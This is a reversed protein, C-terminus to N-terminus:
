NGGGALSGFHWAKGNLSRYYLSELQKATKLQAASSSNLEALQKAPSFDREQYLTKLNEWSHVVRQLWIYKMYSVIVQIENNTLDNVFSKQVDDLELSIRPFKFWPLAGLLLQQWDESKEWDDWAEWEDDEIQALFADYIDQYATAM